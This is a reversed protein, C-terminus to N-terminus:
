VDSSTWPGQWPLSGPVRALQRQLDERERELLPLRERLADLKKVEEPDLVEAGTALGPSGLGPDGGGLPGGDQPADRRPRAGALLDVQAGFPGLWHLDLFSRFEPRGLTRLRDAVPAAGLALREYRRAAPGFRALAIRDFALDAVVRYAESQDALALIARGSAESGGHEARFTALAEEPYLLATLLRLVASAADGALVVNYGPEFELRQEGAPIRL